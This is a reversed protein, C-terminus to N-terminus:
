ECPFDSSLFHDLHPDTQWTLGEKLGLGPKRMKLFACGSWSSTDSNDGRAASAELTVSRPRRPEGRGVGTQCVTTDQHTRPTGACELASLCLFWEVWKAEPPPMFDSVENEEAQICLM